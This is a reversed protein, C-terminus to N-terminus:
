KPIIHALLLWLLMAIGAGAAIIPLRWRPRRRDNYDAQERKTPEINGTRAWGVADPWVASPGVASARQM